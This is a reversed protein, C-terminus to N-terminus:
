PDEAVMAAPLIDFRERELMGLLGTLTTGSATVSFAANGLAPASQPAPQVTIQPILDVTFTASPGAAPALNGALDSATGAAISIGLTGQGTIAHQFYSDVYGGLTVSSQAHVSLSVCTGLAAVAALRQSRM